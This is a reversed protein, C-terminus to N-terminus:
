KLLFELDRDIEQRNASYKNGINGVVNSSVLSSILLAVLPNIKNKLLISMIALMSDGAGVKDIPKLNFSPCFYSNFKNDFFVAGDVGQTIMLYKLKNKKIFNKAIVDISNKKDRVENRLEGENICLFDFYKLHNLTHFASNNSNKQSMGSIFKKSKRIKKLSDLDFFNNSYDAVIIIDHTNVFQDLKENLLHHFIKNDLSPMLYSGFLKYKTIRDVFRTKICTQLNKSTQLKIHSINKKLNKNLLNKIEVENGVDSILKIKNVFDSLHNAIISSGGIYMEKYAKSFVMHPEKGSKGLVDGFIYQDVILDGVVLVKNKKILDLSKILDNFNILKKVNRLFEAHKENFAFGQENIIKSSSM